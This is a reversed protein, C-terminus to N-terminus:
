LKYPKRILEFIMETNDSELIKVRHRQHCRLCQYEVRYPQGGKTLIGIPKMLGQCSNSRDGPYVDVHKSYLCVACHDTYGNGKQLAHCHECIFDEIKRQFKKAM